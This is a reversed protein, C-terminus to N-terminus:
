RYIGTKENGKQEERNTGKRRKKQFMRTKNIRQLLVDEFM